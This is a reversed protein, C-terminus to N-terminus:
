RTMVWSGNKKVYARARRWSGNVKVYPVANRWRNQYKVIAGGSTLIGRPESWDSIGGEAKGGKPPTTTNRARVFFYYLTNASLGTVTRSGQYDQPTSANKIITTPKKPNTGYGLDFRNIRLDSGGTRRVNWYVYASTASSMRILEIEPPNPKSKTRSIKKTVTKPGGLETTGTALLTWTVDGSLPTSFSRVNQLAGGAALNFTVSNSSSIPSSYKFKLGNKAFNPDKCRIGLHIYSGTDQIYLIGKTGTDVTTMELTQGQNADSYGVTGGSM